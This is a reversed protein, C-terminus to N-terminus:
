RARKMMKVMQTEAADFSVKEAHAELKREM